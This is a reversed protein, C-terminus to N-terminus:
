GDAGRVVLVSLLTTAAHLPWQGPDEARLGRARQGLLLQTALVKNHAEGEMLAELDRLAAGMLAGVRDALEEVPTGPLENASTVFRTIHREAEEPDFEEEDLPEDGMTGDHPEGEREPTRETPDDPM